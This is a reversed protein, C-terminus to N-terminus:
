APRPVKAMRLVDNILSVTFSDEAALTNLLLSAKVAMGAITNAELKEAETVLRKAIAQLRSLKAKAAAPERPPRSLVASRIWVASSVAPM